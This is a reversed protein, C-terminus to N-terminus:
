ALLTNQLAGIGDISITVSSGDKMSGVGISTGVAIVDGPYLTLDGSLRSVIEHPPFIIDALPYNQREVGDLLTVVHASQWDLGPVIAPGICSFTDFGKSRTWQPFNPDEAIIDAATVDNVCTYGLICDGAEDVTVNRCERGIVIGLEGEFVIKGAYRAPRRIPEGTGIVSTAPKILFLPHVPPAKGLKQGLARFNNWLAIVKTPTCPSLLQVEALALRRGTPQADTFSAGRLEAITDGELAGMAHTGDATKFRVWRTM